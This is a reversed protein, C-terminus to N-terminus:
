VAIALPMRQENAAATPDAIVINGSADSWQALLEDTALKTMPRGFLFGQGYTCGLDALRDVSSETEIGEATTSLGLNASLAIIADVIKGPDEGLPLSAIYSRDIKLKDFQLERLHHLNSYGTGFDDLAIRVGFNQLSKLTVRAADLDNVLATETIEIELRGPAFGTETLIALIRQPLMRDRLQLPSINIALQLHAPWSRADNFARRMISWTLDSIMGTEEALAIFENPGLLGHEPHHWRALVEFGILERGPLRVVPQYFPEIEGREIGLCLDGEIRARRKLAREMDLHFLCVTGRGDRKGRDLAVEAEHLLSVADTHGPLGLAIGITAGIEIRTQEWSVPKVLSAVISEGLHTAAEGDLGNVLLAFADGGIRAVLGNPPALVRLREAVACLVADGAGRGHLDNVPKFRDLDIALVAVTGADSRSLLHGLADQFMRRNALKTLADHRGAFDAQDRAADRALVARRLKRSKNLSAVFLGVSMCVALMFADQLRQVGTLNLLHRFLDLQTGAVWICLAILVLCIAEHLMDRNWSTERTQDM